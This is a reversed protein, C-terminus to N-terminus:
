AAAGAAHMRGAPAPAYRLLAVVGLLVPFPAWLRGVMAVSGRNFIGRRVEDGIQSECLPCAAAPSALLMAAGMLGLM